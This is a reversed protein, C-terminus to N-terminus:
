MEGLKWNKNCNSNSIIKVQLKLDEGTNFYISISHMIM